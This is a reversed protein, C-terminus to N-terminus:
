TIVYITLSALITVRAVIASMGIILPAMIIMATTLRTNAHFGVAIGTVFTAGYQTLMSFKSGIGERIRELDSFM